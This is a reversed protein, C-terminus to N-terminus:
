SVNAWELSTAEAWFSAKGSAQQVDRNLNIAAGADNIRFPRHTRNGERTAADDSAAWNSWSACVQVRCVKCPQLPCLGKPPAPSTSQRHTWRRPPHQHAAHQLFDHGQVSRDALVSSNPLASSSILVELDAKTQVSLRVCCRNFCSRSGPSGDTKCRTFSKPTSEAPARLRLTAVLLARM